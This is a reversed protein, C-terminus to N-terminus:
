RHRPEVGVSALERDLLETGPDGTTDRRGVNNVRLGALDDDSLGLLDILARDVPVTLGHIEHVRHDLGAQILDIDARDHDTLSRVADALHAIAAVQRGALQDLLALGDADDGCLRDTLRARLQRHAGEVRTTHRSGVDGRTQRTDLLQELSSLRLAGRQQRSAGALDRDLVLVLLAHEADAGDLLVAPVLLQGLAVLDDDSLTGLDLAA